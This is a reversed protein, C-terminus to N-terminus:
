VFCWGFARVVWGISFSMCEVLVGIQWRSAIGTRSGKGGRLSKTTTAEVGIRM